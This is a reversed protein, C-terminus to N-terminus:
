VEQGEVRISRYTRQGKAKQEDPLHDANISLMWRVRAKPLHLTGSAVDRELREVTVDWGRGNGLTQPRGTGGSIAGGGTSDGGASSGGITDGSGPDSSGPERLDEERLMYGPRP